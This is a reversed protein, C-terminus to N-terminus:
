PCGRMSPPSGDREAEVLRKLRRAEDGLYWALVLGLLRPAAAELTFTVRTGAGSPEVLCHLELSVPGDLSRLAFARDPQLETVEYTTRYRRGLFRVTETLRAGPRIPGAELPRFEVASPRWRPHTAPDAVVAFVAAPPADIEIRRETRM